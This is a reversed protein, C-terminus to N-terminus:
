AYDFAKRMPSYLIFEAISLWQEVRRRCTILFVGMSNPTEFVL